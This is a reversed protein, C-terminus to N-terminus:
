SPRNLPYVICCSLVICYMILGSDKEPVHWIKKKTTISTWKLVCSFAFGVREKQKISTWKLVCCFAFGVKEKEKISAWKLLCSFAFGVREKQKIRGISCVPFRLDLERMENYLTAWTSM